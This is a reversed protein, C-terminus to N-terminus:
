KGLDMRSNLRETANHMSGKLINAGKGLDVPSLIKEKSTKRVENLLASWERKDRKICVDGNFCQLTNCINM